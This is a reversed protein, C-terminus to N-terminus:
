RGVLVKTPLVFADAGDNWPVRVGTESNYLGVRLYAEGTFDPEQWTLPHVDVLIEDAVWGGTPRSWQVPVADHQAVIRGDDSVLHVFVKLDESSAGAGAQWM